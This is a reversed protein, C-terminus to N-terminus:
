HRPSNRGKAFLRSARRVEEVFIRAIEPDFQMGAEHELEACAEDRTMRERYPRKSIMASFSDAVSVIRAELPIEEGRMGSPYGGGDYREHHHLVVPSIPRLAPVQQLLRHGIRPHLEIMAHEEPTLAAPKLLIRESIGIKGRRAPALRLAAGRAPETHSGFPQRGGRRLGIGRRLARRSLFRQGGPRRCADGRDRPVLCTARGQLRANQLVAGAQYGVSLLLDDDYDEFGEPNNACVVVGGFEDQLYIPIAVLNEIEGDAGVRQEGEIEEPNEERVEHDRELVKGAFRQVIESREPDHEFGEFAILDLKGDEYEDQRSLLLGKEAGLLTRSLRLVMSPVNSLDGLSGKERYMRVIEANLEQRWDKEARHAEESRSRLYRERSLAKEREELRSEIQERARRQETEGERVSELQEGAEHLASDLERLESELRVRDRRVPEDEALRRARERWWGTLSFAGAIGLILLPTDDRGETLDSTSFAAVVLYVLAAM